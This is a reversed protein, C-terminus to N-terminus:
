RCVAPRPDGPQLPKCVRRWQAPPIMDESWFGRVHIQADDEDAAYPGRDPKKGKSYGYATALGEYVMMQGIDGGDVFCRGVLRKYKDVDKIDCTAKQNQSLEIMRTRAIDGCKTVSCTQAGEPADIGFIRIHYNHGHYNLAVTDGDYVYVVRGTITDGVVPPAEYYSKAYLAGGATAITAAIAFAFALKTRLRM